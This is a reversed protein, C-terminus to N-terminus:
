PTTHTVLRVRRDTRDDAARSGPGAEIHRVDVRHLARVIGHAFTVDATWTEVTRFKGRSSPELTGEVHLVLNDPDVSVVRVVGHGPEDLQERPVDVHWTQGPALAPPRHGLHVPDWTVMNEAIRGDAYRWTGDASERVNTTRTPFGTAEDYRARDALTAASASVEVVDIDHVTTMIPPGDVIVVDKGLGLSLVSSYQFHEGKIYRHTAPLVAAALAWTTGAAACTALVVAFRRFRLHM